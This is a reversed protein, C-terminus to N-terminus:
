KTIRKILVQQAISLINSCSWYLVLGSPFSAFMFLFIVPLFKMVKAQTPDAPQPNLMQQFYLTLAMIIPLVGIHFFSPTNWPILGFFTFINTPDAASLDKIWLYFKAHRMELTVYLVKYLAFFIPMQLLIPLCGSLPNVKEKKYLEVISKQFKASDDGCSKKLRTMEPQIDKLKNMGKFGKYALPFLLIKIFITLLIIAVGFNEVLSHLYNLAIFIPKTIFYLVGFDVARDFLKINYKKQYYDLLKLKKAGAFFHIKNYNDDSDNNIIADTQYRQEENIRYGLFKTSITTSDEPIIATLWYKDSFGFWGNDSDSFKLKKDDLDEFKIEELKNDFVGIAGEHILMQSQNDPNITRSIAAYPKIKINDLGLIKQEITFMYNEDLLITILFEAGQNNKWSLTIRENPNLHKKNSTWISKNTPLEIDKNNSIWGFEAYYVNKTGTPSLLVVDKSNKQVTQKYDLLILNDIKAGVLNISGSIMDNKFKIKGAKSKNSISIKNHVFDNNILNMDKLDSNIELNKNHKDITEPKQFFIQWLILITISLVAAIITRTNNNM